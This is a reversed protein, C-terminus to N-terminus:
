PKVIEQLRAILAPVNHPTIMVFPDELDGCENLGTSEQRIVVCGYPNLYVATAPQSPAVLDPNEPSWDFRDDDVSRPFKVVSM